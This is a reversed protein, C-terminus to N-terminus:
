IKSIIMVDDCQMTKLMITAIIMIIMLWWPGCWLETEETEETAEEEEEEEEEEKKDGQPMHGSGTILPDGAM